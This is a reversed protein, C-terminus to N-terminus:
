KDILRFMHRDLLASVSVTKTSSADRENILQVHVVDESPFQILRAVRWTFGQRQEFRQGPVIDSATLKAM